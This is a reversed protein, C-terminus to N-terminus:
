QVIDGSSYPPLHARPGALAGLTRGTRPLRCPALARGAALYRLLRYPPGRISQQAALAGGQSGLAYVGMQRRGVKDLGLCAMAVAPASPRAASRRAALPWAAQYPDASPEVIIDATADTSLLLEASLIM